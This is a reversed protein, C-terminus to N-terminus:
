EKKTDDKKAVGDPGFSSIIEGGTEKDEEGGLTQEDGLGEEGEGDEQKLWKMNKIYQSNDWGLIDTLIFKKSFLEGIYSSYQNFVAFQAEIAEAEKHLIFHMSPVSSLGVDQNSMKYQDWLGKMKLHVIFTRKLANLFRDVLRRVYKEFKIEDRTVSGVQGNNFTGGSERSGEGLPVRTYPIKFARYLKNLFYVVDTIEGLNAGGAVSTVETGRGEQDKAFWYNELLNQVNQGQDIEGTSPNYIKKKRYKAITRKMYQEAKNKPLGGTNVNFVLREPARGLRYIVLSDELVDLQRYVKKVKELISLVIKRKQLEAQARPDHVNTVDKKNNLTFYDYKGSNVYSLQPTLPSIVRQKINYPDKIIFNKIKGSEDWEIAYNEAQYFKVKRIGRKDDIAKGNDDTKIVNELLFEGTVIFEKLWTYYNEPINLVNNFLQNFENQLNIEQNNNFKKEKRLILVIEQGDSDKNVAESLMEDLADDIYPFREMQRYLKLKECKDKELTQIYSAYGVASFNSYAAEDRSAIREEVEASPDTISDIGKIDSEDSNMKLLDSFYSILGKRKDNSMAENVNKDM